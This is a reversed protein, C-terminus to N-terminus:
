GPFILQYLWDIAYFLLWFQRAVLVKEKWTTHARHNYKLFIKSKMASQVLFHM